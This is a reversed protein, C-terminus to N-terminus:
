YKKLYQIKKRIIGIKKSSIIVFLTFIFLSILALVLWEKPLEEWFILLTDQWFELIIEWEERFLSLLDWIRREEFIRAITFFVFGLIGLIFFLAFIFKLLWFRIKRKELAIIKEMIKLSYNGTKM